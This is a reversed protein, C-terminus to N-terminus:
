YAGVMLLSASLRAARSTSVWVVAASGFSFFDHKKFYRQIALPIRAPKKIPTPFKKYAIFKEFYPRTPEPTKPGNVTNIM